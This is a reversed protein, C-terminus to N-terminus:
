WDFGDTRRRNQDDLRRRYTEEYRAAQQTIRNRLDPALANYGGPSGAARKGTAMATIVYGSEATITVVVTEQQVPIYLDFVEASAPYGRNGGYNAMALLNAYSNSDYTIKRGTDQDIALFNDSQALRALLTTSAPVGSPFRDTREDPRNDNQRVQPGGPGQRFQAEVAELIQVNRNGDLQLDFSVTALTDSSSVARVVNATTGEVITFTGPAGSGGRADRNSNYFLDNLPQAAQPFQSLAGNGGNLLRAVLNYDFWGEEHTRAIDNATDSEFVWFVLAYDLGNAPVGRPTRVAYDCLEQLSALGYNKNLSSLLSKLAPRDVRTEISALRDTPRVVTWGDANTQAVARNEGLFKPTDGRTLAAGFSPALSDPLVVITNQGSQLLPVVFPRAVEALPDKSVPDLFASLTQPNIRPSYPIQPRGNNRSELLVNLERDRIRLSRDSVTHALALDKLASDAPVQVAPWNVRAAGTPLVPEGIIVPRFNATQVAQGQADVFALQIQINTVNHKVILNAKSVPRSKLATITNGYNNGAGPINIGNNLMREQEALIAQYARAATDAASRMAPTMRKQKATPRSSYVVRSNLPVDALWALDGSQLTWALADSIPTNLQVRRARNERPDAAFARLDAVYDHNRERPTSQILPKISEALSAELIQSSEDALRTRASSTLTLTYTEGGKVWELGTAEAIKLLLTNLDVGKVNIFVVENAAENAAQLKNGTQASLDALAKQLTVGDAQFDLALAPASLLAALGVIWTKAPWNM